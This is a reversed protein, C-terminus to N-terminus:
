AFAKDAWVYATGGTGTLAITCGAEFPIGGLQSLDLFTSDGIVANVIVVASGGTESLTLVTAASGGSVLIGWVRVGAAAAEANAITEPQKGFIPNPRISM